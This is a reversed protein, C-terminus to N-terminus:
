RDKPPLDLGPTEFQEGNVPLRFYGRVIASFPAPEGLKVFHVLVLLTGDHSRLLMKIIVSGQFARSKAKQTVSGQFSWEQPNAEYVRVLKGLLTEEDPRWLQGWGGLPNEPSKM